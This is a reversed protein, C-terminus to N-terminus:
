PRAHPSTFQPNMASSGDNRCSAPNPDPTPLKRRNRDANIAIGPVTSTAYAYPIHLLRRLMTTYAPAVTTHRSPNAANFGCVSSALLTIITASAAANYTALPPTIAISEGYVASTYGVCRRPVPLPRAAPLLM